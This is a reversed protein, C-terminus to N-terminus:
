DHIMGLDLQAKQEIVQDSMVYELREGLDENVKVIANLKAQQTNIQANMDKLLRTNIIILAMIIAVAIAYVAILIKAKPSISFGKETKKEERYDEYPNVGGKQFQLTTVSPYIDAQDEYATQDTYGQEAYGQEANRAPANQAYNQAANQTQEAAVRDSRDSGVVNAGSFFLEKVIDDEQVNSSTQADNRYRYQEGYMANENSDYGNNYM